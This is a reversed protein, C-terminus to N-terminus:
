KQDVRYLMCTQKAELTHCTREWTYSLKKSITIYVLTKITDFQTMLRSRANFQAEPQQPYHSNICNYLAM